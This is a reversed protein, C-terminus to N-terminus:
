FQSLRANLKETLVRMDEEVIETDDNGTITNHSGIIQHVEAGETALNGWKLQNGTPSSLSPWTLFLDVKGSYAQPIYRKVAWTNTVVKMKLKLYDRQEEASLDQLTDSHHTFRRMARPLVTRALQLYSKIMGGSPSSPEILGLFEVEQNQAQLQQAMEYAVTGGSCIGAIYYPGEPQVERLQDIYYSAVDEVMTPVDASDQFAYFPRDPTLYKLMYQLDTFVNGLNGPMCFLPAQSGQARLAVLAKSTLAIEEEDDIMEVLQAVTPAQFLAALSIKTGTIAEIQTILRVALMSHGGLDFFNDHIGVEEVDLIDRWVQVMQVEQPTRPEVFETVLADRSAEPVPLARRDIKGNITLPFQDLTVFASPIMYDPLKDALFSRWVDVTPSTESNLVVYAALRQDGPTDERAMVMVERVDPHQALNSEIEGLEIRFGRLQVQHDIRGLYEIDGDALYRALDGSRYLRADPDPNFPDPIFREANLEPRQHYGNSVGSGGVYMEGVVGVPVPQQHADLIYVQLDPIPGGVVSGSNLDAMSLPRYTVHVTTETIGYMNVLQPTQDGHREYWLKLSQMELAEGGFIVYRLALDPSQGVLTEAQILQRFASPTQNLVTVREAVLLKYFDDPSRSILYPVIVLRGGYLLAGWIEWVSFDFAYSHFLTWVDDAKFHYWDDTATFLRIVNAHTVLVGKPKGTSGSTYIVYALDDSTNQIPLNAGDSAAITAWDQDLQIIQGKYDAVVGMLSRQTLLITAEADELIFSMRTAPVSPDLPLYAAGAKLIGLIAVIMDPSREVCLGILDGPKAGQTQLYHAVQNARQNLDGYTLSVNEYTVAVAEPAKEVQTEFWQQIPQDAPYIREINNWVSLIQHREAETLLNLQDIPQDPNAIVENLLMQWHDAMREITEPEYLETSYEFMIELQGAKEFITLTLDFKATRRDIQCPEATVGELDFAQERFNQLVFMTQFFPTYTMDRTPKLSKVVTEFPIEHHAFTELSMQRVRKLLELFSPNGALDTRLVLTNALFGILGETELRNRNAIPTGVLIDEQQSYRYLLVKYAALLTMFLTTNQKRSLEKIGTLLTEPIIFKHRRGRYTPWTPRPHDTPLQLPAPDDGLRDRWFSLQNELEDGQLRERQWESFDAYQIPLNPLQPTEGQRFAAYCAVLEKRLVGFSWGDGALHHVTLSLIHDETDLYILTARMMPAHELDLPLHADLNLLDPLQAEREEAPLHRLDLPELAFDVTPHIIQQPEGDIIAVSTRLTEHRQVIFALSEELAGVDLPGRLRHASLINYTALGPQLQETYWVGEQIYSLPVPSQQARRPITTPPPLPPAAEVTPSSRQQQLYTLIDAKHQKLLLLQKPSMAGKPARFKLKGEDVWLEVNKLSLEHIFEAVNM